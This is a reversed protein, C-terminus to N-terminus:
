REFGDAFIVDSRNEVAGVDAPGGTTFYVVSGFANGHFDLAVSKTCWDVLGAGPAFTGPELAYSSTALVQFAGSTPDNTVAHSAFDDTRQFFGCWERRFNAPPAVGGVNAPAPLVSSAFINARVSATSTENALHVFRDLPTAFVVTSHRVTLIGAGALASGVEFAARSTGFSAAALEVTNGEIVSSTVFTQGLYNRMLAPRAHNNRISARVLELTGLSEILYASAGTGPSGTAENDTFSVCPTPSFFSCAVRNGSPQVRLRLEERAIALGLTGTGSNGTVVLNQLRFRSPGNPYDDTGITRSPSLCLGPRSGTNNALAVLGNEGDAAGLPRYGDAAPPITTDLTGNGSACSGGSSTTNGIILLAANARPRPQFGGGGEVTGHCYFAGGLGGTTNFGIVGDVGIISGHRPASTPAGFVTNGGCYIGGGEQQATNSSISAGEDLYLDVKDAVTSAILGGILAIGGGRVAQNNRVTTGRGLLVSAPGRIAIGGGAGNFANSTSLADGGQIVTRRIQLTGIRGDVLLRLTPAQGGGAGDIISVDNSGNGPAADGCEAYGGEIYVGGQSVSPEYSAGDPVAFTERRLRFTHTGSVGDLANFAAQLNPYTCGAGSGVSVTGALVSSSLILLLAGTAGALGPFAPHM